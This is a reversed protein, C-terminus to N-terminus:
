PQSRQVIQPSNRAAHIQGRRNAHPRGNPL